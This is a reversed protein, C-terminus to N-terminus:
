QTLVIDLARLLGLAEPFSFKTGKLTNMTPSILYNRAGTFDAGSLDTHYFRSQAFDTDRCDAGTLNANTLDVDGAVCDVIRIGDLRLGIFTSYRLSCGIFDVSPFLPKGKPWTAETWDIGVAKSRELRTRRFSCRLVRAMTLDCERLVCDIFRCDRLSAEVFTCDVFTCERFERAALEKGDLNLSRFQDGEFEMRDM